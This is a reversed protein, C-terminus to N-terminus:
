KILAKFDSLTTSRAVYKRNIQYPDDGTEYIKGSMLLGYEYYNATKALSADSYRGSPYCLVFPEKGTLRAIELKSQYLEQELQEETCDSLYPHTMTHSQISVLGSDSLEKVQEKTLYHETGLLDVIVFVTAKVNYKKLLPFLETYNDDYGDDFTLLIPKEIQDARGLDEFWIPTYGNETLYRLQEEMRAPSVFLSQIGWCADSVAHYMLSPVKVGDPLQDNKPYATYYVTGQEEDGFPHYGLERLLDSKVFWDEGTYLAEEANSLEVTKEGLTYTATHLKEGEATKIEGGIANIMESISIYDGTEGYLGLSASGNVRVNTGDAAAPPDDYIIVPAPAPEASESKQEAGFSCASLLLCLLLAMASIKQKM